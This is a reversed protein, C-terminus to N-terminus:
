ETLGKSKYCSFIAELLSSTKETNAHQDRKLGRLDEVPICGGCRAIPKARLYSCRNRVELTELCRACTDKSQYSRDSSAGDARCLLRGIAVSGLKYTVYSKVFIM